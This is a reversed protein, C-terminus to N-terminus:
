PSMNTLKRAAEEQEDDRAPRENFKELVLERLLEERKINENLREVQSKQSIPKQEDKWVEDVTHWLGRFSWNELDTTDVEDVSDNRFMELRLEKPTKRREEILKTLLPKYWDKLDTFEEIPAKAVTLQDDIERLGEESSIHM